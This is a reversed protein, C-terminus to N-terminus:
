KTCIRHLCGTSPTPIDRKTFTMMTIAAIAAAAPPTTSNRRSPSEPSGTRITVGGATDESVLWTSVSNLAYTVPATLRGPMYAILSPPLSASRISRAPPIVSSASICATLRATLTFSWSWQVTGLTPSGVTTGDSLTETPSVTPLTSMLVASASNSSVSGPM